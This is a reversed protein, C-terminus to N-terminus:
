RQVAPTGAAPSPAPSLAKPRTPSGGQEMHSHRMGDDVHGLWMSRLSLEHAQRSRPSDEAQFLVYQGDLVLSWSVLGV